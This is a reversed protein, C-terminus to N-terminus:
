EHAAVGQAVAPVQPHEAACGHGGRAGGPVVKRWPGVANTPFTAVIPACGGCPPKIRAFGLAHGWAAQAACRYCLGLRLYRNNRRTWHLAEDLTEPKDDYGEANRM